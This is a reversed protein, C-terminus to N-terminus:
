GGPGFQFGLRVGWGPSHISLWESEFFTPRWVAKAVIGGPDTGTQFSFGCNAESLLAFSITERWIVSPGGTAGCTVRVALNGIAFTPRLPFLQGGLHWDGLFFGETPDDPVRFQRVGMNMRFQFASRRASMVGLMGGVNSGTIDKGDLTMRREPQVEASVFLFGSVERYPEEIIRVTVDQGRAEFPVGSWAAAALAVTWVRVALRGTSLTGHRKGGALGRLDDTMCNHKTPSMSRILQDPVFVNAWGAPCPPLEHRRLLSLPSRQVM